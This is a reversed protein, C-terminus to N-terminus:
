KSFGCDIILSLQDMQFSTFRYKKIVVILMAVDLTEFYGFHQSNMALQRKQRVASKRNAM